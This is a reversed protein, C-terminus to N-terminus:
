AAPSSRLALVPPLLVLLVFPARPSSDAGLHPLLGGGLYLGRVNDPSQVLQWGARRRSTASQVTSVRSSAGTREPTTGNATTALAATAAVVAAGGPSTLTGATCSAARQRM